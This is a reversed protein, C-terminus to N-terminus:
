KISVTLNRPSPVLQSPTLLTDVYPHDFDIDVADFKENFHEVANIAYVNKSQESIGLIKYMKKSSDVDINNITERRDRICM